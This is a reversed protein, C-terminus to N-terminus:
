LCCILEMEQTRLGKPSESIKQQMTDEAIVHSTKYFRQLLAKIAVEEIM